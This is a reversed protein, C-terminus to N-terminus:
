VYIRFIQLDGRWYWVKHKYQWNREWVASGVTSQCLRYKRPERAWISSLFKGSMATFKSKLELLRM